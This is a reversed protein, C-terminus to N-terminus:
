HWIFTRKRKSIRQRVVRCRRYHITALPRSLVATHMQFAINQIILVSGSFFDQSTLARHSILATKQRWFTYLKLHHKLFSLYITANSFGVLDVTMEPASDARCATLLRSLRSYVALWNSEASRLQMMCASCRDWCTQNMQGFSFPFAASHLFMRYCLIFAIYRNEVRTHWGHINTWM